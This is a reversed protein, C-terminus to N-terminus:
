KNKRIQTVADFPVSLKLQAGSKLNILKATQLGTLKKRAISYIKKTDEVEITQTDFNRLVGNLQLNGGSYSSIPFVFIMILIIKM